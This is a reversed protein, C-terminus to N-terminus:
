QTAWPLLGDSDVRSTVGSGRLTLPRTPHGPQHRHGSNAEPQDLADITAPIPVGHAALSSSVDSLAVLHIERPLCVAVGRLRSDAHTRSVWVGPRNRWVPYDGVSLADSSM